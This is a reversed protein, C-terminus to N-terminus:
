YIDNYKNNWHVLQFYSAPAIDIIVRFLRNTEAMNIKVSDVVAQADSVVVEWKVLSLGFIYLPV